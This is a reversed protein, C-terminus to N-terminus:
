DRKKLYRRWLAYNENHYKAITDLILGIAFSLTALVGVSAALVARPLHFVKGTSYFDRIPAIGFFLCAIALIISCTTFFLLPKYDKFIMVVSKIILFGDSYTNLKSYSGKPRSTYKIPVEIIEFNKAAAQLTMETEIEFGKSLLPVTKVFERSFVRYGSLVDTVTVKFLFSILRAVFRNGFQHFRRFSHEDFDQMRSGVVMGANGSHLTEVLSRAASAPYTGDGDVMVFIDAEVEDFMHRVVNGKGQRYSRVVRAGAQQAVLATNDTSNNDFVFVEAEPLNEKFESVVQGITIEENYSPILVAVKRESKLLPGSVGSDSM